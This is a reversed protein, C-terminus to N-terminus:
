PRSPASDAAPRAAFTLTFARPRVDRARADVGAPFDVDAPSLVVRVPVDRRTEEDFRRVVVPPNGYLKLVERARASVVVSVTTPAPATLVLGTDLLAVFRAELVVETAEEARVVLWLAVSLALAALKVPWRDFVLARWAALGRQREPERLMM